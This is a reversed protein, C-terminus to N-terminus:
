RGPTPRPQWLGPAGSGTLPACGCRIPVPPLGVSLTSGPSARRSSSQMPPSRAVGDTVTSDNPGTLYVDYQTPANGAVTVLFSLAVPQTFAVSQPNPTV